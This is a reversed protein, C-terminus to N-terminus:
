NLQDVQIGADRLFEIPEIVRYEENYVVRIVGSQIIM